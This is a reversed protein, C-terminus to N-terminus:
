KREEKILKSLIVKFRKEIKAKVQEHLKRVYDAKAQADKHKVVSVNPMPLLDLPTLPNLGYVIEFPSYNTTNHVVRYYAFEIHPLYLEWAKL